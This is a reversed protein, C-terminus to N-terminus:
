QFVLSLFLSLSGCSLSSPPCRSRYCLTQLWCSRRGSSSLVWVQLTAARTWGTQTSSLAVNDGLCLTLIACNTASVSLGAALGPIPLPNVSQPSQPSQLSANSLHKKVDASSAPWLPTLRRGRSLFHPLPPGSLGLRRLLPLRGVM